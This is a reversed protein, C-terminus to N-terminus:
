ALVIGTEDWLLSAFLGGKIIATSLTMNAIGFHCNAILGLNTGTANIYHTDTPLIDFFCDRLLLDTNSYIRVYAEAIVAGNFGDFFCDRVCVRRQPDTNGDLVLSSYQGSGGEFRCNAIYAAYGGTVRVAYKGGRLVCNYMTPGCSGAYTGYEPTTAAGVGRFHIGGGTSGESRVCINQLHFAPAHVLLAYGSGTTYQLKVGYNPNGPITNSVGILSLDATAFPVTVIEEYRNVDSADTTYTLPRVYIVDGRGAATVAAQITAKASTPKLGDNADNGSTGDVFRAVAWPSSFQGSGM